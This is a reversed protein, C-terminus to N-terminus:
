IWGSERLWGDAVNIAEDVADGTQVTAGGQRLTQDYILSAQM